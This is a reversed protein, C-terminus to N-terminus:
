DLAVIIMAVAYAGLGFGAVYPPLSILVHAFQMYTTQSADLFLYQAVFSAIVSLVLFGVSLNFYRSKHEKMTCACQFSVAMAILMVICTIAAPYFSKTGLSFTVVFGNGIGKVLSSFSEVNSTFYALAGYIVMFYTAWKLTIIASSAIHRQTRTLQSNFM